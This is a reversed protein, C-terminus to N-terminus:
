TLPIAGLILQFIPRLAKVFLWSLIIGPISMLLSVWTAPANNIISSYRIILFHLYQIVFAIFSLIMAGVNFIKEVQQTVWVAITSGIWAITSIQNDAFDAIGGILPLNSDQPRDTAIWEFTGTSIDISHVDVEYGYATLTKTQDNSTFTVSDNITSDEIDTLHATTENIAVLFIRNGNDGPGLEFQITGEYNDFKDSSHNLIGTTPNAPKEPLEGVFDFQRETINYEPIDSQNVSPSSFGLAPFVMNILILLLTMSVLLVFDRQTFNM